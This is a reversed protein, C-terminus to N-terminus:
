PQAPKAWGGKHARKARGGKQAPKAWGSKPVVTVTQNYSKTNCYPQGTAPLSQYISASFILKTGPALNDAVRVWLVFNYRRRAPFTLDTWTVTRTTSNVVPKLAPGELFSRKARHHRLDRRTIEPIVVVEPRRYRFRPIAKSRWYTVGAPLRVQFDVVEPLTANAINRVRGVYKVVKGPAVGRKANSVKSTFALNSNSGDGAACTAFVQAGPSTHTTTPYTPSNRPYPILQREFRSFPLCTSPHTTLSTEWVSCLSVPSFQVFLIDDSSTFCAKSGKEKTKGPVFRVGDCRRCCTCVQEQLVDDFYINLIIYGQLSPATPSTPPTPVPPPHPLAASAPKVAVM